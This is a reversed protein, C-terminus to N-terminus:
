WRAPPHIQRKCTLKRSYLEYGEAPSITVPVTDRAVAARNVSPADAQKRARRTHDSKELNRPSVSKTATLGLLPSINITALFYDTWAGDPAVDALASAAGSPSFARSACTAIFM